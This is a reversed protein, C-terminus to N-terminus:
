ASSPMRSVSSHSSNLRTSKRDLKVAMIDIHVDYRPLSTSLLSGDCAYINGRMPDIEVIRLNLAQQKSRWMDGETIQVKGISFVIGLAFLIFGIFVLNVRLLIDKKPEAM